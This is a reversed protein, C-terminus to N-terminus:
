EKPSEALRKKMTELGARVGLPRYGSVRTLKHILLGAKLPRPAVQKLDATKVPSLKSADLGFVECVVRAFAFRDLIDPGTIHFVGSQKMEVLRLTALALDENYTPSSIQDDPARMPEGKSGRTLLQYVFNKGQIEPGYVVTTRIILASPHDRALAAEAEAKSRGYVSLPRIPDEERYPGAVGDFVYETSYYVFKAGVKDAARACALPGEVNIARALAPEAECKDVHTMGAACLVLDPRVELVRSECEAPLRLDLRLLGSVPHEAYTGVVDRGQKKLHNVLQHGVQGSAGIVLAKM